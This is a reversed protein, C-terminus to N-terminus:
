QSGGDKQETAPKLSRCTANEAQALGIHNPIAILYCITASSSSSARKRAAQSSHPLAYAAESVAVPCIRGIPDRLPQRHPLVDKERTSSLSGSSNSSFLQDTGGTANGGDARIEQQELARRVDADTAQHAPHAIPMRSEVLYLQSARVFESM